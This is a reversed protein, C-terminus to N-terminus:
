PDLREVRALTGDVLTLLRPARAAPEYVWEERRIVRQRALGSGDRVIESAYRSEQTAPAGCRAVIEGTSTGAVLADLNCARGLTTYGYGLSDERVIRNDRLVLRRLLRNPGFNYFWAEVRREIQQEFPGREGLVLWESYRDVWYPEGCRKRLEYAHDGIEVIRGACRLAHAPAVALLCLGLCALWRWM